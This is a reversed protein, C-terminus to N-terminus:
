PCSVNWASYDPGSRRAWVTAQTNHDSTFVLGALLEPSPGAKGIDIATLAYRYSRQSACTTNGGLMIRASQLLSAQHEMLAILETDPMQHKLEVAQAPVSCAGRQLWAMQLTAGAMWRGAYSFESRTMRCLLRLGRQPPTDVSAALTWKAKPDPRSITFVPKAPLPAPQQQQYFENFSKLEAESPARTEPAAASIPSAAAALTLAALSQALNM